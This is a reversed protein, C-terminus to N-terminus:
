DEPDAGSSPKRKRGPKGPAADADEIRRLEASVPCTASHPCTPIKEIANKLKGIEKRMSMMEIKVPEVVYKMTMEIVTKDNTLERSRVDEQMTRVEEHLKKIEEQYKGKLLKSSIWATLPAEVIAIIALIITTLHEM